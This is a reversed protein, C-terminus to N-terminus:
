KNKETDVVSALLFCLKNNFINSDEGFTINFLGFVLKIWEGPKICSRSHCVSLCVFLCVCAMAYVAVAAHLGAHLFLTITLKDAMLFRM